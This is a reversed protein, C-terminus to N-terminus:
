KLFAYEEHRQLLLEQYELQFQEFTPSEAYKLLLLLLNTQLNTQLLEQLNLRDAIEQVIQQAKEQLLSLRRDPRKFM